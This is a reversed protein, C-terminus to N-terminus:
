DVNGFIFPVRRKLKTRCKSLKLMNSRSVAQQMSQLQQAADMGLLLEKIRNFSLFLDLPVLPSNKLQTQLFTDKVLNSDGFYFNLQDRL